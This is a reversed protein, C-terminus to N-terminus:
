KIGSQDPELAAAPRPSLPRRTSAVEPANPQQCLTAALPSGRSSTARLSASPARRSSLPPSSLLPGRAERRLRGRRGPGPLRQGKLRPQPGDGGRAASAPSDRGPGAAEREPTPGLRPAEHLRRQVGNEAKANGRPPGLDPHIAEPPGRLPGHAGKLPAPPARTPFRNDKCPRPVGRAQRSWSRFQALPVRRIGLALEGSGDGERGAHHTPEPVPNSPHCHAESCSLWRKKGSAPLPAHSGPRHCMRAPHAVPQVSGNGGGGGGSSTKLLAVSVVGQRVTPQARTCCTTIILIM